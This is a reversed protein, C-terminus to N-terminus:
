QIYITTKACFLRSRRKDKSLMTNQGTFKQFQHTVTICNLGMVSVSIHLPYLSLEFDTRAKETM